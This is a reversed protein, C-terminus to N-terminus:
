RSPPSTAGSTGDNARVKLTDSGYGTDFSLQSLQAVTVDIVQNTPEVVGNFVWHGSDTTTDEVEYSTITNGQRVRHRFVPEVRRADPRPRLSAPRRLSPAASSVHASATVTFTTFPGLWPTRPRWKM